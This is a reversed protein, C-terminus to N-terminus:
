NKGNFEHLLLAAKARLRHLLAQEDCRTSNAPVYDWGGGLANLIEDNLEVFRAHEWYGDPNDPTAPMLDRDDGLYLGCLHLMKAVMSTGSRHMGAVCVPM